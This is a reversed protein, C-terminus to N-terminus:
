HKMMLMKQHYWEPVVLLNWLNIMTKSMLLVTDVVVVVVV